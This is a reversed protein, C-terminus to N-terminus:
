ESIIPKFVNVKLGSKQSFYELLVLKFFISNSLDTTAGNFCHVIKYEDFHRQVIMQM